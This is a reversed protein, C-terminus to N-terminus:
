TSGEHCLTVVVVVVVVVVEARTHSVSGLVVSRCGKEGDLGLSGETSTM